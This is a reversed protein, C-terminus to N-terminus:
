KAKRGARGSKTMSHQVEVNPFLEGYNPWLTEPDVTPLGLCRRVYNVAEPAHGAYLDNMYFYVREVSAPLNLLAQSWERLETTREDVQDPNQLERGQGQWRIYVFDTTVYISRPISPHDTCCLSIRLDKITQLLPSLSDKEFWSVHRLEIAYRFDKPLLELFQLLQKARSRRFSPSFQFVFPGLAKGLLSMTKLFGLVFRNSDDLNGLHTIMRPMKVSFIFNDPVSQAWNKVTSDRPIEYYSSDIEVSDFVNSYFELFQRNSLSNPYFIGRWNEYGFGETGVRFRKQTKAM